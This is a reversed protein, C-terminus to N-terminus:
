GPSNKGKAFAIGLILFMIGFFLWEPAHWWVSLGLKLGIVVVLAYAAKKLAPYKEILKIFIGAAFRMTVIGLIGGTIIVWSKESLAVGALISDISFAIDLLEVRLVVAWFNPSRAARQDLGHGYLGKYAVYLLYGGGLFKLWWLKVLVLALIVALIRFIFAGLIGYTLARKQQERPLISVMIALVLANDVSLIGELAVLWFIVLFAEFM